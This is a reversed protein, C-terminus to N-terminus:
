PSFLWRQGIEPDGSSFCGSLGRKQGFLYTKIGDALAYFRFDPIGFLRQSRGRNKEEVVQRLINRHWVLFDTNLRRQRKEGLRSAGPIRFSRGSIAIRGGPVEQGGIPIRSMALRGSTNEWYSCPFLNLTRCSLDSPQLFLFIRYELRPEIFGCYRRISRLIFAFSSFGAGFADAPVM